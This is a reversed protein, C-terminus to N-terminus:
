YVWDTPPNFSHSFVLFLKIGMKFAMGNIHFPFVFIANLLVNISKLYDWVIM